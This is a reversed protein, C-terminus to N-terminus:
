CFFFNSLAMFIFLLINVWFFTFLKLSLIKILFNDRNSCYIILSVGLVAPISKLALLDHDDDVLFMSGVILAMGLYVFFSKLKDSPLYIRQFLLYAIIGGSLLEWM